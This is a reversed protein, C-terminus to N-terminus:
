DTKPKSLTHSRYLYEYCVWQKETITPAGEEEGPLRASPNQSETLQSWPAVGKLLNDNLLFGRPITILYGVNEPSKKRQSHDHVTITKIVCHTYTHRYEGPGKETTRI